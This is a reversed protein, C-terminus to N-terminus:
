HGMTMCEDLKWKKRLEERTPKMLERAKIRVKVMMEENSIVKGDPGIFNKIGEEIQSQVNSGGGATGGKAETTAGGSDVWNWASSISDTIRSKKFEFRYGEMLLANYAKDLISTTDEVYGNDYGTGESQAYINGGGGAQSTQYAIRYLKATSALDASNGSRQISRSRVLSFYRDIMRDYQVVLKYANDIFEVRQADNMELVGGAQTTASRMDKLIGTGVAALANIDKTMLAYEAPYIHGDRSVAASLQSMKQSAHSITKVVEAGRHFQQVASAVKKLKEINKVMTKFSPDTIMKILTTVGTHMPDTVVFQAHVAPTLLLSLVAGLLLITLKKM